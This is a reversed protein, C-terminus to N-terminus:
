LGYIMLGQHLKLWVRLLTAGFIPNSQIPNSGVFICFNFSHLLPKRFLSSYRLSSSAEAVLIQIFVFASYINALFSFPEIKNDLALILLVISHFNESQTHTFQLLRSHNNQEHHKPKQSAKPPKLRKPTKPPENESHAQFIPKLQHRKSQDLFFVWIVWCPGISLSQPPNSKDLTRLQGKKLFLNKAKKNVLPM